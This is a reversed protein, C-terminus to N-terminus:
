IHILSLHAYQDASAAAKVDLTIWGNQRHLCGTKASDFTHTFDGGVKVAGASASVFTHSYNGGSTIMSRSVGNSGSISVFTHATTNTSPINELCQFSFTNVTTASIAVLTKYLPDAKAANVGSGLARPYTKQASGGDEACTFTLSNPSLQIKDGVMMGHANSTLQVIGTSPNYSGATPTYNTGEVYNTVARLIYTNTDSFGMGTTSFGLSDGVTLSTTLGSM